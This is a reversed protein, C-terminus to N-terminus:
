KGDHFVSLSVSPYLAFFLLSLGIEAWEHGTAGVIHVNPIELYIHCSHKVRPYSAPFIDCYLLSRATYM